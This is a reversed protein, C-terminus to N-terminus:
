ESFSSSSPYPSSAATTTATTAPSQKLVVTPTERIARSRHELILQDAFWELREANTQSLLRKGGFPITELSKQNLMDESIKLLNKVNWSSPDDMEPVTNSPLGMAQVRVYNQRNDGFAMSIVHDVTDSVGDLVIKMMPKAWQFSGWGRVHGREYTRDFQGTGLSLVLLDDVGNVLPFEQKNHLVHTIAAAAPNNMVLGGDVATCATQGDVSTMSVPKFFGPTASTARCVEWMKFDYNETELADARSFLFPGASSLDYCPILVPKLTDKLTLSKGDARLFCAKLLRELSKTSYAPAVGRLKALFGSPSFIKKGKEALLTLTDVAKFLPRGTGDNSFLMSTLIGGTSTGAAVDFYDAIRADPNGSKRRLADELYALARAAIIGRMGGGDISLICVKGRLSRGVAAKQNGPTMPQLPSEVLEQLLQPIWLKHDGYGFLWNNELKSFIECRLKDTDYSLRNMEEAEVSQSMSAM